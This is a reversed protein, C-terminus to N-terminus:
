FAGIPKGRLPEGFGWAVSLKAAAATRFAYKMSRSVRCARAVLQDYCENFNPDICVAHFALCGIQRLLMPKASAFVGIRPSFNFNPLLGEMVPAVAVLFTKPLVGPINSSSFEIVVASGFEATGIFNPMPPQLDPRLIVGLFAAQEALPFTDLLKREPLQPRVLIPNKDARALIEKLEDRVADAHRRFLATLKKKELLHLLAASYGLPRGNIQVEKEVLKVMGRLDKGLSRSWRTDTLYEGELRSIQGCVIPRERPNTSPEDTCGTVAYAEVFNDLTNQNIQNMIVWPRESEPITTVQGSIVGIVEYGPVGEIAGSETIRFGLDVEVVIDFGIKVVSNERDFTKSLGDFATRGKRWRLLGSRIITSLRTELAVLLVNFSEFCYALNCTPLTDNLGRLLRRQSPTFDIIYNITDTINQLIDDAGFVPALCVDVEPDGVNCEDVRLSEPVVQGLPFRVRTTENCSRLSDAYRALQLTLFNPDLGQLRQDVFARIDNIDSAFPALAPLDLLCEIEFCPLDPLEDPLVSSVDLGTSFDINIPLVGTLAGQLREQIESATNIIRAAEAQIQKRVAEFPGAFNVNFNPLPLSIPPLVAEILAIVAREIWGAVWGFFPIRKIIGIIHGIVRAIDIITFRVRGIIPVSFSIVYTVINAIFRLANMIITVPRMGNLINRLPQIGTSLIIEPKMRNLVQLSKSVTAMGANAFDAAQSIDRIVGEVAIQKAEIGSFFACAQLRALSERFTDLMEVPPRLSVYGSLIGTGLTDASAALNKFAKQGKRVFGRGKELVSAGRDLVRRIVSSVPGVYPVPRVILLVDALIRSTEANRRTTDEVQSSVRDLERLSATADALAQDAEELQRETIGVLARMREIKAQMSRVLRGDPSQLWLRFLLEAPIEPLVPLPGPEIAVETGERTSDERLALMWRSEEYGCDGEELSFVSGDQRCLVFVLAPSPKFAFRRGNEENEWLSEVVPVSLSNDLCPGAVLGPQFADRKLCTDGLSPDIFQPENLATYGVIMIVSRNFDYSTLLLKTSSLDQVYYSSNLGSVNTTPIGGDGDANRSLVGAPSNGRSRLECTAFDKFKQTSIAGGNIVCTNLALDGNTQATVCLGSTEDVIRGQSDLLFEGDTGNLASCAVKTITQGPASSPVLCMETELYVEAEMIRKSQFNYMWRARDTDLKCDRLVTDTGFCLLTDTTTDQIAIHFRPTGFAFREGFGSGCPAWFVSVEDVGDREIGPRNDYSLCHTNAIISIYGDLFRRISFYSAFFSSCDGYVAVQFIQGGVDVTETSLTASQLCENSRPFLVRSGSSTITDDLVIEHDDSNDSAHSVRQIALRTNATPTIIQKKLVFHDLDQPGPGTSIPETILRREQSLSDAEMFRYNTTHTFSTCSDHVVCIAACESYTLDILTGFPLGPSGVFSLIDVFAHVNVYVDVGSEPISLGGFGERAQKYLTCTRSDIFYKFARCFPHFDCLAICEFSEKDDFTMGDLENESGGLDVLNQIKYPNTEARLRTIGPTSPCSTSYEVNEAVTANENEVELLLCQSSVAQYEYARCTDSSLCAAECEAQTMTSALPTLPSGDRLICVDESFEHFTFAQEPELVHKLSLYLDRTGSDCLTSFDTGQFLLCRGSQDIEFANCVEIQDCLFRCGEVTAGRTEFLPSSRAVCYTDRLHAYATEFFRRYLPPGPTVCPGYEASSHLTCLGSSTLTFTRCPRRALCIAACEEQTKSEFSLTSGPNSLCKDNIVTYQTPDHAIFYLGKQPFADCLEMTYGESYLTCEKTTLNYKALACGDDRCVSRCHIVSEIDSVVNSEGFICLENDSFGVPDGHAHYIPSPDVFQDTAVRYTTSTTSGGCLFSGDSVSLLQATKLYIRCQSLENIEISGCLVHSDCLAECEFLDADDVSLILSEASPCLDRSSGKNVTTFSYVDFFNLFALETLEGNVEDITVNRLRANLDADVDDFQELTRGLLLCANEYIVVSRNGNGLVLTGHGIANCDNKVNCLAECDRQTVDQYFAYDRVPTSGFLLDTAPAYFGEFAAIFNAESESEPPCGAQKHVYISNVRLTCLLQAGNWTFAACDDREFCARRCDLIDSLDEVITDNEFNQFLFCSSNPLPTYLDRFPNATSTYYDLLLVEEYFFVESEAVFVSNMLFCETGNIESRPLGGFGETTDRYNFLLAYGSCLFHVDCFKECQELTLGVRRELLLAATESNALSFYEYNHVYTTKSGSAAEEVLEFVESENGQCRLVDREASTVLDRNVESAVPKSTVDVHCVASLPSLIGIEPYLRDEPLDTCVAPVEFIVEFNFIVQVAQLGDNCLLSFSDTFFVSTINGFLEEGGGDRVLFDVAGGQNVIVRYEISKDASVLAVTSTSFVFNNIVSFCILWSVQNTPSEQYTYTSITPTQQTKVLINFVTPQVTHPIVSVEGETFGLYELSVFAIFNVISFMPTPELRRKNAEDVTLVEYESLCEFLFTTTTTNDASLLVGTQVLRSPARVEYMGTGLQVVGQCSDYGLELCKDRASALTTHEYCSPTDCGAPYFEKLSIDELACRLLNPLPIHCSEAALDYGFRSCGVYRSCVAKCDDLSVIDAHTRVDVLGEVDQLDCDDEVEQTENLSDDFTERLLFDRKIVGTFVDFEDQSTDCFGPFYLKDQEEVNLLVCNEVIQTDVPNAFAIAVCAFFVDCIIQCDSLRAVQLRDFSSTPLCSLELDFYEVQPFHDRVSIFVDSTEFDVPVPSWGIACAAGEELPSEQSYLQCGTSEDFSFGQCEIHADCISSCQSETTLNALVEDRACDIQNALDVNPIQAYPTRLEQGFSGREPLHVVTESAGACDDTIDDVRYLRCVGSVHTVAKCPVYYTCWAKCAQYGANFTLFINVSEVALCGPFDIFNFIEDRLLYTASEGGTSSCPSDLCLKCIGVDRNENDPEQAEYWFSHCDERVECAATCLEFSSVNSFVIDIGEEEVGGVPPATEGTDPVFTPRAEKVDVSSIQALTVLTRENQIVMNQLSLTVASSVSATTTITSYELQMSGQSDIRGDATVVIGSFFCSSNSAGCTVNCNVDSEILVLQGDEVSVTLSENLQMALISLVANKTVTVAGNAMITTLGQEPPHFILRLAQTSVLNGMDFIFFEDEVPVIETESEQGAETTPAATPTASPPLEAGLVLVLTSYDQAASIETNMQAATLISNVTKTCVEEATEDLGSVIDVIQGCGSEFLDVQISKVVTEAAAPGIVVCDEGSVQTTLLPCMTECNQVTNPLRALGPVDSSVVPEGYRLISVSTMCVQAAPARISINRPIETAPRLDIATGLTIDNIEGNDVFLTEPYFVSVAGAQGLPADLLLQYQVPLSPESWLSLQRCGTSGMDLTLDREFVIGTGTQAYESFRPSGLFRVQGCERFLDNLDVRAIGTNGYSYVEMSAIEDVLIPSAISSRHFQYFRPLLDTGADMSTGDGSIAVSTPTALDSAFQITQTIDFVGFAIVRFKSLTVPVEVLPDSSAIPTVERSDVTVTAGAVTSNLILIKSLKGATFPLEVVALLANDTACTDGDGDIAAANGSDIVRITLENDADDLAQLECVTAGTAHEILVTIELTEPIAFTQATASDDYEVGDDGVANSVILEMSAYSDVVLRNKSTTIKATPSPEVMGYYISSTSTDIDRECLFPRTESCDYSTWLAAIQSGLALCASPDGVVGGEFIFWEELTTVGNTFEIEDGAPTVQGGIWADVCQFCSVGLQESERLETVSLLRGGYTGCEANADVWTKPETTLLVQVCKDGNFNVWGEGCVPERIVSNAIEVASTDGVFTPSFGSKTVTVSSLKLAACTDLNFLANSGPLPARLANQMRGPGVLLAPKAVTLSRNLVYFSDDLGSDELVIIESQALLAAELEAANNVRVPQVCCPGSECVNALCELGAACTSNSCSDAQVSFKGDNSVVLLSSNSTDCNSRPPQTPPPSDAVQGFFIVAVVAVVVGLLVVIAVIISWLSFGWLSRQKPVASKPESGPKPPTYRPSKAEMSVVQQNKANVKVYHEM